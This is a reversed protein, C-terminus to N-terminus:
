KHEGLVLKDINTAKKASESERPQLVVKKHEGTDTTTTQRELTTSLMSFIM